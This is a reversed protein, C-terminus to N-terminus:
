FIYKLFYFKLKLIEIKGCRVGPDSYDNTRITWVRGL